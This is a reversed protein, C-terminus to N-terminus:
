LKKQYRNGYYGYYGYYGDLSTARSVGNSVVGLLNHNKLVELARKLKDVTTYNERVVLIIGDVIGALYQPEAFPLLPTTDIIVVRDPYRGNVEAILEQMRSSSFLEVPNDVPRGAPLLSLNGIGIKILAAGVDVGDLVCDSLGVDAQIGLYQLLSPKRLDAEILLVTYDYEQALSIALNLATLSKGEGSMASTVMLSQKGNGGKLLKMVNSKLKRYQEAAPSDVANAMVLCPNAGPPLNLHQRPKEEQFATSQRLLVKGDPDPMVPTADAVVPDAPMAASPPQGDVAAANRQRTAIEIAKEIRSM